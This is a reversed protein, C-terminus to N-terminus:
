PHGAVDSSQFSYAESCSLAPRSEQGKEKDDCFLLVVSRFGDPIVCLRFYRFFPRSNLHRGIISMMIGNCIYRIAVVMSTIYVSHYLIITEKRAPRPESILELMWDTILQCRSIIRSWHYGMSTRLFRTGTAPVIRGTPM